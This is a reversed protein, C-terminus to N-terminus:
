FGNALGRIIGATVLDSRLQDKAVQVIAGVKYGKGTRVREYSGSVISAYNQYTGKEGFFASFYDAKQTEVVASGALAPASPKGQYGRFLVGHVAAYKILLDTVKASKSYVFVKVLCTGQVGSGASTIDYQVPEVDKAMTPQVMAMVFLLLSLLFKMM